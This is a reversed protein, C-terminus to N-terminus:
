CTMNYQFYNVINRKQTFPTTKIINFILLNGDIGQCAAAALLKKITSKYGEM